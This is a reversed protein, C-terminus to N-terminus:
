VTCVASCGDGSVTGGDDCGEESDRLGDGCSSNVAWLFLPLGGDDVPTASSSVTVRMSSGAAATRYVLLNPCEDGALLAPAGTASVGSGCSSYSATCQIVTISGLSVSDCGSESCESYSTSSGYDLRLQLLGGLSPKIFWSISSSPLYYVIGQQFVGTAQTFQYVCFLLYIDPGYLVSAGSCVYSPEVACAASCGDGGATKGDDCAELPDRFGDGCTNNVALSWSLTVSVPLSGVTVKVYKGIHNTRQVSGAALSSTIGCSPCTPSFSIAEPGCSDTGTACQVITISCCSFSSLMLQLWGSVGPRIYFSLFGSSGGQSLLIISGSAQTYQYACVDPGNLTSAGSCAYSPEM